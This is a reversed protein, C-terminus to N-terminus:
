DCTWSTDVLDYILTNRSNSPSGRIGIVSMHWRTIIPPCIDPGGVMWGDQSSLFLRNTHSLRQYYYRCTARLIALFSLTVLLVLWQLGLLLLLFELSAYDNDPSRTRYIIAWVYLSHVVVAGDFALWHLLGPCGALTRSVTALGNIHSWDETEAAAATTTPLEMLGDMWGDM